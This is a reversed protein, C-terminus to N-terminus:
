TRVVKGVFSKTDLKGAAPLGLLAAIDDFEKAPMKEKGGLTTVVQRLEAIDISGTRGSDFVHLARELASAQETANRPKRRAMQQFTSFGVLEGGAEAQLAEVEAETYTQGLSRLALGLEAKSIKGDADKDFIDFCEKCEQEDLKAAM